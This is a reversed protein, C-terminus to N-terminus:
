PNKLGQEALKASLGGSRVAYDTAKGWVFVDNSFFPGITIGGRTAIGRAYAGFQFYACIEIVNHIRATKEQNGIDDPLDMSFVINDSFAKVSVEARSLHKDSCMDLAAQLIYNMSYLNTDNVDNKIAESTGLLDVFAVICNRTKLNDVIQAM